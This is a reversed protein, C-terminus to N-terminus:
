RIECLPCQDISNHSIQDATTYVAELQNCYWFALPYLERVSKPLHVSHLNDMKFFAASYISVVPYDGLEDPVFVDMAEGTYKLLVAEEKENIFYIFDDSCAAEPHPMDEPRECVVYEHGNDVAWRAAASNEPAYVKVAEDDIIQEGFSTVSAPIYIYQVWGNVWLFRRQLSTVGDPIVLWLCHAGQNLFSEPMVKLTSPIHVWLIGSGGMISAAGIEELGENLELATLPVTNDIAHNGTIRKLTSPFNMNTLNDCSIAFDGSIYIIGEPLTLTELTDSEIKEIGQVPYGNVTQPIAFERFDGELGTMCCGEGTIRFYATGEPYAVTIESGYFVPQIGRWLTELPVKEGSLSGSGMIPPTTIKEYIRIAKGGIPVAYIEYVRNSASGVYDNRTELRETLLLIADAEAASVARNAQPLRVQFDGLLLPVDDAGYRYLAIFKANQLAEPLGDSDETNEGVNPILVGLTSDAPEITMNVDWCGNELDSAYSVSLDNLEALQEDVTAAFQMSEVANELSEEAYSPVSLVVTLLLFIFLKRM